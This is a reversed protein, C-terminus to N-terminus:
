NEENCKTLDYTINKSYVTAIQLLDATTKCYANRITIHSDKLGISGVIMIIDATSKTKADIVLNAGTGALMILDAKTKM